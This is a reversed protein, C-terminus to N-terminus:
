REYSAWDRDERMDSWVERVNENERKYDHSNSAEQVDRYYWKGPKNDPWEAMSELLEEEREPTRHLMRNILTVAEARSILLEPRFSGDEYGGIWGLSAAREIYSKAWHSDIDNFSRSLPGAEGSFAACITAFEARSILEDPRFSGDKFGRIIGLKAMTSVPRCYWRSGSVDSFSNELTLSGDRVKAKLLRFFIASAEARTLNAKPHVCGDQPYGVIYSFHDHGNLLQPIPAFFAAEKETEGGSMLPKIYEPVGRAQLGFGYASFNRSRVM